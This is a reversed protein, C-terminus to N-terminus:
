HLRSADALAIWVFVGAQFDEKERVGDRADHETIQGHRGAGVIETLKVLKKIVFDDTLWELYLLIKTSCIM